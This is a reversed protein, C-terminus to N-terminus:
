ICFIIFGKQTERPKMPEFDREAWDAEGKQGLGSRSGNRGVEGACGMLEGGRTSSATHAMDSRVTVAGHGFPGSWRAALQAWWPIKQAHFRPISDFFSSKDRIPVLGLNQGKAFWAFGQFLPGFRSPNPKLLGQEARWLKGRYFSGQHGVRQLELGAAM